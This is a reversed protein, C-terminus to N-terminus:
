SPYVSECITFMGERRLMVAIRRYGFHRREAAIRWVAERLADEKKRSQYSIRRRSVDTEQCARRESFGHREKM